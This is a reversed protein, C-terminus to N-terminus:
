LLPLIFLLAPLVVVLAATSILWCANALDLDLGFLSPLILANMAVPMASLILTVRLPVGDLGAWSAAFFVTAPVCVFKIFSLALSQSIYRTVRSLRLGMGISFLFFVTGIVMATASLVGFVAPRHVGLLNLAMGLGLAPLILKLLSGARFSARAPSRDKTGFWQAVPCAVGFYFVEECLRFLSSYAISQEGFQLVAVLSGIAGINIFSGCCYMSGAQARPLGMLRSALLALAGGVIWAFLGLVPLAILRGDPSPLGWLSLTASFPVLGFLAVKQLFLRLRESQPETLRSRALAVRRQFFYGAVLSAFILVLTLVLREM